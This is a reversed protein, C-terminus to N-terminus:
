GKKLNRLFARIEYQEIKNKIYKRLLNYPNTGKMDCILELKDLSEKKIELELVPL